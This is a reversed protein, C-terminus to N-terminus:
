EALIRGGPLSAAVAQGVMRGFTYISIQPPVGTSTPFLGGDACWVNPVAHMRGQEDCVSRSPDGGMCMGGMPHVAALPPDLPGFALAQVGQAEADSTVVRPTATPILVERAGAALFIRAAASVGKAMMRLDAEIPTYHLVPRGDATATIQGVTWDHLMPTVAAVQRFRAMRQMALAGLGPLMSGVGVPHGFVPVIWVRRDPETPHLFETCEWTQPIGRWADVSENFLAGVTAGPHLRLGRGVRRHPDALGSALALAASGTASAALVVARARVHFHGVVGLEPDLIEGRVGTVRGWSQVVRTARRGALVQAGHASADPLLVRASNMKADYACGLECFGSGICGKRNHKLPGNRWGMAEAGARLIQNNRNALNWPVEHVELLREIAEYHPRLRSTLGPLGHEREWADLLEDDVRKCLNINHVTSGGVGRGQLVQLTKDFTVRSAADQFLRPFMEEERQSFTKPDHREGMELVVVGHGARAIERAAAGGGAGSGVIVVDTDIIEETM